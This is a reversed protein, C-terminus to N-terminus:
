RPPGLARLVAARMFESVSVGHTNAAAIVRDHERPALRISVPARPEQVRPRGRKPTSEAAGLWTISDKTIV